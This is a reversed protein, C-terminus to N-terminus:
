REILNTDNHMNKLKGETLRIYNDFSEGKTQLRGRLAVWLLGNGSHQAAQVCVGTHVKRQASASVCFIYM